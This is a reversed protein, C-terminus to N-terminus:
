LKPGPFLWDFYFLDIIKKNSYVSYQIEKKIREALIAIEYNDIASEADFLFAVSVIQGYSTVKTVIYWRKRNLQEYNKHSILQRVIPYLKSTDNDRVGFHKYGIKVGDPSYNNDWNSNKYSIQTIGTTKQILKPVVIEKQQSYILYVIFFLSISFIVKTIM